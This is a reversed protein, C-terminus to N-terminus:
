RTATRGTRTRCRRATRGAALERGQVDLEKNFHGTLFRERRLIPYDHRLRQLKQVFEYLKNGPKEPQDADALLSWDVWGIPSDQCYANNNGNQTRGFEDGALLM